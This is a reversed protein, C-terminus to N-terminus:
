YFKVDVDARKAEEAQFLPLGRYGKKSLPVCLPFTYIASNFATVDANYLRRSAAIEKEIMSSETMLKRISDDAGLQPYNEFAMTLGSQIKNITAEKLALANTGEPGNDKIGSRYKAINEYVDKDFKTQGEVASVLKTLTDFRKTLQVDIGSASENIKNQLRNLNNIKGINVVLALIGFTIICFFIYLGKQGGTCTVPGLNNVAKAQFAVNEQKQDEPTFLM